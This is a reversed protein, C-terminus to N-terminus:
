ARALDPKQTIADGVSAEKGSAGCGSSSGILKIYYSSGSQISGAAEFETPCVLLVHPHTMTARVASLSKLFSDMYYCHTGEITCFVALLPLLAIVGCRKSTMQHSIILTGNLSCRGSSNLLIVFHRISAVLRLLSYYQRAATMIMLRAPLTPSTSFSDECADLRM